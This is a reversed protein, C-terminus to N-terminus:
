ETPPGQPRRPLKRPGKSLALAGLIAWQLPSIDELSIGFGFPTGRVREKKRIYSTTTVPGSPGDVFPVGSVTYATSKLTERMLYAYRMLVGDSTLLGAATIANQVEFFWDILWSWPTLEWLVAPTIRTGLLKNALQEFAEIKGLLGKDPGLAFQFMGVFYIREYSTDTILLPRAPNGDYLEDWSAINSGGGFNLYRASGLSTSSTDVIPPFDYRRHVQLGSISEYKRIEESIDLMQRLIKYLDSLFPKWGFTINLYEKGLSRYFLARSELWAFLSTGPLEIGKERIIEAATQALNANPSNPAVKAIARNGYLNVQLPSIVPIPPAGPTLVGRAWSTGAGSRVFSNKHSYDTWTKTTWFEHGIDLKDSIGHMLFYNLVGQGSTFDPYEQYRNTRFSYTEQHVLNSVDSFSLSSGRFGESHLLGDPGADGRAESNTRPYDRTQLSYGGSMIM